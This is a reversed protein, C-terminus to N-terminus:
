PSNFGRQAAIFSTLRIIEENSIFGGQLRETEVGQQFLMDGAGILREAGPQDLITMSDIRSATRFAISAPINSKILRTIVDVSPRQTTLVLHIGALKGKQLLRIISASISKSRKRDMSITLDAFEDIITVIYPFKRGERLRDELEVCLSELTKEARYFDEVIMDNEIGLADPLGAFYQKGINQYASFECRKPDMLVLKLEEPRKSMLLSAILTHVAMSKGQKTAGALLIHPAASLDIVKVRQGITYGIAVPLEAKSERYTDSELLARIPVICRSPNAFEIGISDDLTIFRVGKLGTKLAIDDQLTKVKRFNEGPALRVKLLSVSPGITLSSSEVNTRYAALAKLIRNRSKEIEEPQINQRIEEHRDLIEISPFKYDHPETKEEPVTEQKQNGAITGLVGPLIKRSDEWLNFLSTLFVPIKEDVHFCDYPKIADILLDFEPYLENYIFQGKRLEEPRSKAYEEAWAILEEASSWEINFKISKMTDQKTAFIHAAGAM